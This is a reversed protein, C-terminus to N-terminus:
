RRSLTAMVLYGHLSNGAFHALFWAASVRCFMCGHGPKWYIGFHQAYAINGPDMHKHGPDTHKNGPVMHRNGPFCISTVLFGYAMLVFHSLRLFTSQASGTVQLHCLSGLVQKM